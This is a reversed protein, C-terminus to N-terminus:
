EEVYCIKRQVALTDNKPGLVAITVKYLDAGWAAIEVKKILKVEDMVTSADFYTKDRQCEDMAKLAVQQAKV